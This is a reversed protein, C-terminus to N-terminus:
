SKEFLPKNSQYEYVLSLEQLLFHVLHMMCINILLMLLFPLHISFFFYQTSNAFGAM